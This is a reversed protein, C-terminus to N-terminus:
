NKENWLCIVSLIMQIPHVFYNLHSSKVSYHLFSSIWYQSGCISVQENKENFIYKPELVDNFFKQVKKYESVIEVLIM